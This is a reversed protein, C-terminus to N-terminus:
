GLIDNLLKHKLQKLTKIQIKIQERTSDFLEFLESLQRQKEKVPLIFEQAALTKWKITPSLSGESIQIARQMFADSQLFFPLFCRDIYKENTRLIMSHASAIGDFHSVAVKRLYARRKCFIIDGKYIKLKTGIVDDPTGTKEIKLNDTELHELGVYTTLDTEKPEVRESINFAIQEFKIKKFDKAVLFNGFQMKEGFLENLLQNKLNLLNKEQQETQEISNELMQFLEVIQTQESFPPLLFSYKSVDRWKIRKSMTGAANAIAYEWFKNTSLLLVLVGKVIENEQRLVIADGSCIGNFNVESVRRLYTNRRALLVNGSQFLKMASIINIPSIWKKIKLQGIDFEELGVFKDYDSLAPNEVRDSIEIAINDISQKVWKNKNWKM